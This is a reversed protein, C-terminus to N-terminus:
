PPPCARRDTSHAGIQNPSCRRYTSAALVIAVAWLLSNLLIPIYGAGRLTWGGDLMLDVLPFSLVSHGREAARELWGTPEGSDFRSMGQVFAVVQLTVTAAVHGATLLGLSTLRRM